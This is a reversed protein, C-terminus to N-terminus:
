LATLHQHRDLATADTASLQSFDRTDLAIVLEEWMEEPM